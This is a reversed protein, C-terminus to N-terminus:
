SSWCVLNTQQGGSTRIHSYNAIIASTKMHKVENTVVLQLTFLRESQGDGEDLIHTNIITVKIATPYRKWSQM